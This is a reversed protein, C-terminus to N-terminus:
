RVEFEPHTTREEMSLISQQVDDELHGQLQNAIATISTTAPRATSTTAHPQPHLTDSPTQHSALLRSSKAPSPAPRPSPPPMVTRRPSPSSPADDDDESGAEVWAEGDSPEYGEAAADVEQLLQALIPDDVQEAM